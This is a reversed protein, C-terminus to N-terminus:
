GNDEAVYFNSERRPCEDRLMVLCRRRSGSGTGMSETTHGCRSCTAEVGDGTYGDDNTVESEQITVKVRM